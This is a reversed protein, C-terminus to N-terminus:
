VPWAGKDGSLMSLMTKDTGIIMAAITAGLPANKQNLATLM